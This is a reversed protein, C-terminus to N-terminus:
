KRLPLFAAAERAPVADSANRRILGFGRTNKRRETTPFYKRELKHDRSIKEFDYDFIDGRASTICFVVM